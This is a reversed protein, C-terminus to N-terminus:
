KMTKFLKLSKEKEFILKISIMKNAPGMVTIGSNKYTLPTSSDPSPGEPIINQMVGVKCNIKPNKEALKEIIEVGERVDILIYKESNKIFNECSIKPVITHAEAILDKLTM